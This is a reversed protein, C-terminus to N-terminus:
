KPNLGTTVAYFGGRSDLELDREHQMILPIVKNLIFLNGEPTVFGSGPKTNINAYDIVFYTAPDGKFKCTGVVNYQKGTQLFSPNYRQKIRQLKELTITYNTNRNWIKKIPALDGIRAWVIGNTLIVSEIGLTPSNSETSTRAYYVGDEDFFHPTTLVFEPEGDRILLTGSGSKDESKGVRFIQAPVFTKISQSQCSPMASLLLFTTLLIKMTNMKILTRTSILM